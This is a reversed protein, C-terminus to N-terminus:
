AALEPLQGPSSSLLCTSAAQQRKCEAGSLEGAGACLQLALPPWILLPRMNATTLETSNSKTCHLRSCYYWKLEALWDALRSALRYVVAQRAVVITHWIRRGYALIKRGIKNIETHRQHWGSPAFVFSISPIPGAAHGLCRSSSVRDIM